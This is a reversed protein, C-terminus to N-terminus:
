SDDQNDEDKIYVQCLKKILKGDEATNPNLPLLISGVQKFWEATCLESDIVEESDLVSMGGDVVGFTVIRTKVLTDHLIYTFPLADVMVAQAYARDQEEPHYKGVIFPGAQITLQTESFSAFSADQGRQHAEPNPDLIMAIELAGYPTEAEVTKVENTNTNFVIHPFKNKEM